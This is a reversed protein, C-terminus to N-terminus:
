CRFNLNMVQKSIRADWLSWLLNRPKKKDPAKDEPHEETSTSGIAASSAAEEKVIAMTKTIREPNTFAHNKFRPDLMTAVALAHATECLHFRQKLQTLINQTLQKEAPVQQKQLLDAYFQILMNILPIVKSASTIKETSLESTIDHLPKLVNVLGRIINWDTGTLTGGENEQTSQSQFLVVADKVLLERELMTYLSNWRTPVDLLLKLPKNSVLGVIEQCKEFREKELTSRRTSSVVAAVKARIQSCSPSLEIGDTVVLNIAHGFCHLYNIGTGLIIFSNIVM